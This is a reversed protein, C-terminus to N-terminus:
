SGLSERVRKQFYHVGQEHRPSLPGARYNGAEYNRHTAVCIGYDERVVALNRAITDSRTDDLSSALDAFYFHYLQETRDVALPNIRSTNMGGAFLSLTWNPWMWLWKGRYFLGERPPATMRVFGKHATTEFAEFDIAAFFKPHIGPIHYGEVFNDTYIKWNADFNVTEARVPQYTEIPEGALEGVLDGLQSLLDEAPSVAVFLLGRWEAAHIQELPWDEMRFGQEEGFWPANLLRGDDGFVWQHYPCRITACRGAGDELLRAGRHRCVNRFARLKGDRGRIAFVKIGALDAAVYAGREAVQSAPGLLQWTRTFIEERERLLVAPDVYLRPDLNLM